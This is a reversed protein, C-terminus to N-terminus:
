KRTISKLDDQDIKIRIQGMEQPAIEGTQYIFEIQKEGIIYNDPAYVDGNAFIMKQHLENIDKVKIYKCLSKTILDKLRNNYGPVFLDSLHYMNGNRSDFNRILTLHTVENSGLQVEIDAIYNLVYKAKSQVQTIIHYKAQYMNAHKMDHRYMTSFNSRYDQLYRDVFIRLKQIPTLRHSTERLYDPSLIGCRMLKNNIKNAYRGKAMLMDIHINCCPTQKQQEPLLALTTDVIVNEFSIDTADYINRKSKCAGLILWAITWILWSTCIKRKM